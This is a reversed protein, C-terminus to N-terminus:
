SKALARRLPFALLATLAFAGAPILLAASLSSTEGVSGVAYPMTMGGCLAMTFLLGFVTGSSEPYRAGALALATPYVGSAAAGLLLV